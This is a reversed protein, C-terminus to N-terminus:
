YVDNREEEIKEYFKELTTKEFGEIWEALQLLSLADIEKDYFNEIMFDVLQMGDEDVLGIDVIEFEEPSGPSFMTPHEQPEYYFSVEVEVELSKHKVVFRKSNLRDSM